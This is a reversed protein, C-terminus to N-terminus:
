KKLVKLFKNLFTEVEEIGNLRFDAASEREKESILIGLGTQELAFFADEDTIDDGLYVPMTEEEHGTVQLLLSVAKGKNWEGGPVIEFVKKGYNVKLVNEDVYPKTEEDMIKKLKPINDDEVLRYHISATIGKREILIGEISNIKKEIRDCVKQIVPKARKAEEKVFDVSPGTIEYGHNGSYFINEVNVRTKLDDLSRGSIIGISCYDVLQNLLKRMSESLHAKEPRDVIPTLTGDFDSILFIPEIFLEKTEEWNKLLHKM